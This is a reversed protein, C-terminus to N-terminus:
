ASHNVLALGVGKAGVHVGLAPNVNVILADQPPYVPAMAARVQAAAEPNNTHLVALRDLRGHSLGIEILRDIARKFTRINDLSKVDGESLEVLPKIQLLRGAVASVWGVRGSKYINELTNLAAYVHTRPHLRNIAAAIEDMGAGAAAMEAALIVQFGAGMTVQGSDLLTYRGAAVEEAALRFNNYISSLRAPATILILHDARAAQAAILDRSLGLPCASTKPLQPLTPLLDFFTERTIEKGDDLYSKDGITIVAPVLTIDLRAAVEPPVDCVSDAIVKIVTM